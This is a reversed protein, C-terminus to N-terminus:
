NYLIFNKLLIGSIAKPLLNTFHLMVVKLALLKIDFDNIIADVPAPATNTVLSVNLPLVDEYM